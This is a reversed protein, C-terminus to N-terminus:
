SPRDKGEDVLQRRRLRNPDDAMIPARDNRLERQGLPGLPKTRGRRKRNWVNQCECRVDLAIRALKLAAGVHAEKL